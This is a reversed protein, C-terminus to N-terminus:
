DANIIVNYNSNRRIGWVFIRLSIKPM